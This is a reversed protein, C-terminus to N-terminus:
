EYDGSYYHDVASIGASHVQIHPTEIEKYGSIHAFCSKGDGEYYWQGLRCNKHNALDSSKQNSKGMFVKYINFKFVLHDLKALETFSRLASASITHEMQQSLGLLESMNTVAQDGNEGFGESEKAVNEMQKKATDTDVQIVDVLTAIENTAVSAREALSRVEDAVVAFGRGQEGARAAEIAANLALLNTQESIDRIVKVFSGIDDAHKNLGNVAAANGKTDKAMKHLSSAISDISSRTNISVESAKIAVVKEEKLTNAMTGLSTQFTTLSDSFHQFQTFVGNTLTEKKKNVACDEEMEQIKQMQAQENNQADHLQSKLTEIESEAQALLGPQKFLNFMKREM